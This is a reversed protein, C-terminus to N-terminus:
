HHTGENVHVCVSDPLWLYDDVTRLIESNRHEYPVMDGSGFVQIWFRFGCCGSRLQMVAVSM